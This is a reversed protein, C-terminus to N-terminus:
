RRLKGFCSDLLLWLGVFVFFYFLGFLMRVYSLFELISFFKWVVFCLYKSELLFWFTNEM